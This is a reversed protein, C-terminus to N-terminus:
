SHVALTPTEETLIVLLRNLVPNVGLTPLVRVDLLLVVLDELVDELAQVVGLHGLDRSYDPIDVGILPGSVCQLSLGPQYSM